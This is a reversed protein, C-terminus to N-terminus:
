YIRLIFNKDKLDSNIIFNYINKYLSTILINSNEMDEEVKLKFSFSNIINDQTDKIQLTFYVHSIVDCLEKITTPDLYQFDSPDTSDLWENKGILKLLHINTIINRFNNDDFNEINIVYDNYCVSPWNNSNIMNTNM